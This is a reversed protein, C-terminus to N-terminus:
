DDITVRKGYKEFREKLEQFTSGSFENMLETFVVTSLKASSIISIAGVVCVDSRVYSTLTEKGTELDVTKMSQKQTPVPKVLLDVVIKQGNSMGGEIGGAHNTLKKANAEMEDMVQTGKMKYTEHIDGFEVGKVSPIDFLAKSIQSTFREQYSNFTGIGIPLGSLVVRVKGGLTYGEKHAFDIEKMMENEMNGDPCLLPHEEVSLPQFAELATEIKGVAVTYGWTKINLEELAEKFFEGIAVDMATRRASAREAVMRTDDFEYKLMGGLDAHGPRPIANKLNPAQTSRNKIFFTLPSGITEGKWLGSLIEVHDSEIKMRAGRGYVIQRAKLIEDIRLTDVKFHSPFGEVIGFLGYGHSDGSTLIKM